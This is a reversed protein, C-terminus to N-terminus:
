VFQSLNARICLRLHRPMTYLFGLLAEDLNTYTHIHTHTDRHPVSLLPKFIYTHTVFVLSPSPIDPNAGVM